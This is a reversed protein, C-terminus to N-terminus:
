IRRLKMVEEDAMAPLLSLPSFLSNTMLQLDERVGDALMEGGALMEEGAIMEEGALM